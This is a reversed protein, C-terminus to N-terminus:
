KELWQIFQKFLIIGISFCLFFIAFSLIFSTHFFYSITSILLSWVFLNLFLIPWSFLLQELIEQDTENVNYRNSNFHLKM